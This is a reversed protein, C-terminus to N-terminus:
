EKVIKSGQVGNLKGSKIVWFADVITNPRVVEIGAPLKWLRVENNMSGKLMDLSDRVEAMISSNM